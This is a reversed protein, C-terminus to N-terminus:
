YVSPKLETFLKTITRPQLTFSLLFFSHIRIQCTCCDFILNKRPCAPEHCMGINFTFDPPALSHGTVLVPQECGFSISGIQRGIFMFM